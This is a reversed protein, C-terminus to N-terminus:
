GLCFNLLLTGLCRVLKNCADLSSLTAVQRISSTWSKHLVRSNINSPGAGTDLANIPLITLSYNLGVTM